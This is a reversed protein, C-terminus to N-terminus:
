AVVPAAHLRLPRGDLDEPLPVGAAELVTPAIDYISCRALETGAAVGPGTVVVFGYPTHSGTRADQQRLRLTGFRPSYLAEWRFSQDWLITLDPLQHLFPGSFAEHSFTVRKVVPRGSDPDTLDYLTEAIDHCIRHYEDGPEVVGGLDRGKVSIRIAGVSDNNPVAFARAGSWKRGGAYWLFLLQDQLRQPLMAKIRYQLDGPLIMKLQRWPNVHVTRTASPMAQQPKQGYGLLDLIEPLNWSAHYLPGMGHAAFVMVRTDRDVLALMQGIEQDIARYVQEIAGALGNDVAEQYRAHSLVAGHYFHHGICHPASFGAFFVDWPEKHMLWRFLEGHQRVGTLVRERLAALPVPKADVRDCDGVAHHGFRADIEALLAAPQSARATKTAHAGWNTVQFGQLHKSLPFKPADVVGVRCGAQSLYDWFPARQIVDDPVHRLGMRQPDYQVYFYKEFKAPNSGTYLAAWVTDPLQAATSALEARTGQEILRRFTPLKGEAAWQTVLNWEMADLGILLQRTCSPPVLAQM